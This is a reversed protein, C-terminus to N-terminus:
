FYRLSSTPDMRINFLTPLQLKAPSSPPPSPFLLLFIDILLMRCRLLFTCSSKHRSPGATMRRM